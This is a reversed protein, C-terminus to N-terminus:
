KAIRALVAAVEADSLGLAEQVGSLAQECLPHDTSLDQAADWFVRLGSADLWAFFTDVKGMENLALLLDLKSITKPREPPPAYEPVLRGDVLSWSAVAVTVAPVAYYGAAGLSEEDPWFVIRGDIVVAHGDTRAYLQGTQDNLRAYQAAFVSTSILLIILALIRKM